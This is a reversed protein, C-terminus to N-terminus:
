RKCTPLARKCGCSSPTTSNACRKGPKAGKAVMVSVYWFQGTPMQVGQFYLLHKQGPELDNVDLASVVKKGQIVEGTYTTGSSADAPPASTEQANVEKSGAALAVSAGVTAFSAIMFDRRALGGKPEDPM